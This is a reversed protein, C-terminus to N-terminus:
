EPKIRQQYEADTELREFVLEIQPHDWSKFVPKCGKYLLHIYDNSIKDLRDKVEQITKGHFDNCDLWYSKEQV